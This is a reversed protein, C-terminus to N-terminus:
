SQAGRANRHRRQRIRTQRQTQLEDTARTAIYSQDRQGFPDRPTQRLCARRVSEANLADLSLGGRLWPM